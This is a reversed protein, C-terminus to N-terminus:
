SEMWKAANNTIQTKRQEMMTQIQKNFDDRFDKMVTYFREVQLPPGTYLANKKKYTSDILGFIGYYDGTELCYNLTRKEEDDTCETAKGFDILILRMPIGNTGFYSSDNQKIMCNADRYDNHFYGMIAMQILMFVYVYNYKTHEDFNHSSILQRVSHGNKYDKAFEMYTFGWLVNPDIDQYLDAYLIAPCLAQGNSEKYSKLFVNKQITVENRFDQETYKDSLIKMVKLLLVQIDKGPENVDTSELTTTTGTPLNFQVIKSYNTKAIITRTDSKTLFNSITIPLYDEPRTEEESRIVIGGQQKKKKTIRSRGTKKKLSKKVM